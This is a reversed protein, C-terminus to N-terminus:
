KQEGKPLTDRKYQNKCLAMISYMRETKPQVGEEVAAQHFAAQWFHEQAASKGLLGMVRSYVRNAITITTDCDCEAGKGCLTCYAQQFKSDSTIM